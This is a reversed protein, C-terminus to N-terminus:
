PNTKSQAQDLTLGELAQTLPVFWNEEDYCANFQDLFLEKPKM